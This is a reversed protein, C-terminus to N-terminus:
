LYGDHKLSRLYRLVAHGTSAGMYLDSPADLYNLIELTAKHLGCVRTTGGTASNEEALTKVEGFFEVSVHEVQHFDLLLHLADSQRIAERIEELLSRWNMNNLLVSNQIEGITVSGKKQFVIGSSQEM